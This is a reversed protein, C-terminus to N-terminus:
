AILDRVHREAILLQDRDKQKEPEPLAAYSVDQASTRFYPLKGPEVALLRQRVLWAEHIQHSLFEVDLAEGVLFANMVVRVAFQAASFNDAKWDQPLSGFPININVEPQAGNMRAHAAKSNAAWWATDSTAKWRPVDGKAAIHSARWGEHLESAVAICLTEYSKPDQLKSLNM